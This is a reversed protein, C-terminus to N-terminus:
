DNKSFEYLNKIIIGVFGYKNTEGYETGEYVYDLNSGDWHWEWGTIIKNSSNQARLYYPNDFYIEKKEIIKPNEKYTKNLFDRAYNYIIDGNDKKFETLTIDGVTKTQPCIRKIILLCECSYDDGVNIYFSNNLILRDYTVKNTQGVGDFKDMISITKTDKYIYCYLDKIEKNM